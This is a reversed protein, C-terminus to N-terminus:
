NMLGVLIQNSHTVAQVLVLVVRRQVALNKTAAVALHATAVKLATIVLVKLHLLAVKKVQLNM